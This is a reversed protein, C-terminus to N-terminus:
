LILGILALSLPGLLRNILHLPDLFILGMLIFMGYPEIGALRDSSAGPLLGVLVRGGDLPPIPLLNFLMLGVNILVSYHLMRVIPELIVFGSGAGDAGATPAPSLVGTAAIGHLLLGSTVALALNTLPGAAAVWVMDAKPRRLNMFNVPVPKAYGFVFGPQGSLLLPMVYLLLPLLITGFPDIHPLPNLTLRGLYKATPDGRRDAVFGHAAEHFTIALLIPIAVISLGHLIASLNM